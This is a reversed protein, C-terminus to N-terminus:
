SGGLQSRLRQLTDVLWSRRYSRVQRPAGDVYQQRCPPERGYDQHIKDAIYEAEAFPDAFVRM